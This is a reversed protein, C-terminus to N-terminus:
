EAGLKLREAVACAEAVDEASKRWAVGGWTRHSSGRWQELEDSPTACLGHRRPARLSSWEDRLPRRRRRERQEEGALEDPRTQPRESRASQPLARHRM